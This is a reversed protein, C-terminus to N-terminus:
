LVRSTFNFTSVQQQTNGSMKYFFKICKTVSVASSKPTFTVEVSVSEGPGLAYKNLRAVTTCSGCCPKIEEISLTIQSTNKATFSFQKNQGTVTTGINKPNPSFTLM